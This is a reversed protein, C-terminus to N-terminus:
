HLHSSNRPIQITHSCARSGPSYYFGTEDMGEHGLSRQQQRAVDVRHADYRVELSSQVPEAAVVDAVYHAERVDLKAADCRVQIEDVAHGDQDPLIHYRDLAHGVAGEARQCTCKGSIGGETEPAIAGRAHDHPWRVMRGLVRDQAHLVRVRHYDACAAVGFDKGDDKRRLRM